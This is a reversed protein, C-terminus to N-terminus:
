LIYIFICAFFLKTPNPLRVRIALDYQEKTLTKPESEMSTTRNLKASGPASQQQQNEM